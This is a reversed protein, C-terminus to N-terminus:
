VEVLTSFSLSRYRAFVPPDSEGKLQIFGLEIIFQDNGSIEFARLDVIETHWLRDDYTKLLVIFPSSANTWIVVRAAVNISSTMVVLSLFRYKTVNITLDEMRQATVVTEPKLVANSQVCLTGNSSSIETNRLTEQDSTALIWQPLKTYIGIFRVQAYQMGGSYDPEFDDTLRVSLYKITGNYITRLDMELTTWSASTHWQGADHWIGNEDTVGFSFMLPQNSSSERHEIKLYPVFETNLQGLSKQVEIGSVGREHEPNFGSFTAFLTGVGGEITFGSSNRSQGLIWTLQWGSVFNDKWDPNQYETGFVSDEWGAALRLAPRQFLTDMVAIGMFPALALLLMVILAKFLLPIRM